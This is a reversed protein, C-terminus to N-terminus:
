SVMRPLIGFLDFRSGATYGDASSDFQISTIPLASEEDSSAQRQTRFYRWGNVYMSGAGSRDSANQAIVFKDKGSNIDFFDIKLACFMNANAAENATGYGCAPGTTIAAGVSTGTGYFRQVTYDAYTTDGNLWCLVPGWAAANRSFQYYGIVVLDLFQCWDTSSGDSPSTFTITDTDSSLTTSALAVWAEGDELSGDANIYAPDAM